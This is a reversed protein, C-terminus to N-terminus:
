ALLNIVSAPVGRCIGRASLVFLQDDQFFQNM